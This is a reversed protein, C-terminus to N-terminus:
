RRAPAPQHGRRGEDGDAQHQQEHERQGALAAGEDLAVDFRQQPQVDGHGRQQHQHDQQRRQPQRDARPLALEAAQQQDLQGADKRQDAHHRAHQDVGHAHLEHRAADLDPEVRPHLVREVGADVEAAAREVRQDGVEAALGAGGGVAQGFRAARRRRQRQLAHALLQRRLLHHQDAAAPLDQEGGGAAAGHDRGVPRARRQQALRAALAHDALDFAEVVLVHGVGHLARTHARDRAQRGGVEGEAAFVAEQEDHLRDRRGHGAIRQRHLAGVALVLLARQRAVAQAAHVEARQRERQHQGHEARHQQGRHEARLQRPRQQQQGLADLLDRRAVERGFRHAGRAVLDAAQRAAKGVHGLLEAMRAFFHLAAHRLQLARARMQLGDEVAQGGAHDHEVASRRM